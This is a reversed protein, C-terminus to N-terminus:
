KSRLPNSVGWGFEEATPKPTARREQSVPLCSSDCTRLVRGVSEGQPGTSMNTSSEVHVCTPSFIETSRVGEEESDGEASQTEEPKNSNEEDNKGQSADNEEEELGEAFKEVLMNVN